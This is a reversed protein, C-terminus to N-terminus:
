RYSTGRPRSRCSCWWAPSPRASCSFQSAIGLIAFPVGLGLLLWRNTELAGWFGGNGNWEFLTKWDEPVDGPLQTVALGALSSVLSIAVLCRFLNRASM